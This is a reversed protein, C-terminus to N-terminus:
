GAAEKREAREALKRNVWQTFAILCGLTLFGGVPLIILLAPYQEPLIRIGDAGICKIRYIGKISKHSCVIFAYVKTKQRQEM